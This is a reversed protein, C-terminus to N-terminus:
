SKGEIPCTHGKRLAAPLTFAGCACREFPPRGAGAGSGPQQRNASGRISKWQELTLREVHGSPLTLTITTTM